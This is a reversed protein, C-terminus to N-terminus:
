TATLVALYAVFFNFILWLAFVYYCTLYFALTLPSLQRYLAVLVLQLPALGMKALVGFAFLAEATPSLAQQALLVLELSTAEVSLFSFGACLALTAM